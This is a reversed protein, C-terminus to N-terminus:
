LSFAEPADISNLYQIAEHNEPLHEKALSLATQGNKVRLNINAGHELLYKITPVHGGRVAEHLATWGNNDAKNVLDKKATLLRQVEHLNGRAAAVRFTDAEDEVNRSPTQSSRLRGHRRNISMPEESLERREEDIRNM